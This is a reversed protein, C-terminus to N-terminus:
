IIIKSLIEFAIFYYLSRLKHIVFDRILQWSDNNKKAVIFHYKNCSRWRAKTWDSDSFFCKDVKNRVIVCASLRM